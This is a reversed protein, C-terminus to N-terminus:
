LRGSNALRVGCKALHARSWLDGCFHTLGEYPLLLPSSGPIRQGCSLTENQFPDVCTSGVVKKLAGVTLDTFRKMLGVGNPYPIMAEQATKDSMMRTPDLIGLGEAKSLFTKNFIDMGEPGMM